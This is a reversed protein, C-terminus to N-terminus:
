VVSKRDPLPYHQLTLLKIFTSKGAGNPGVIATHEGVGIALTLGDLVRRGGLVVTAGSLELLPEAAM